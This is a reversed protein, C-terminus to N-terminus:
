YIPSVLIVHQLHLPGVYNYMAAAGLLYVGANYTWQVHDFNTCNGDISAGDYFSYDDTMFGVAHTWNWVKTAWDAYTQNGTYRALRAALNFFCGNSITNKYM